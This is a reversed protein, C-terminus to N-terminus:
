NRRSELPHTTCLHIHLCIAPLPQYKKKGSKWDGRLKLLHTASLHGIEYAHTYLSVLKDGEWDGKLKLPHTSCLVIATDQTHLHTFPVSQNM